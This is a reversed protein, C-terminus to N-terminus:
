EGVDKERWFAPHVNVDVWDVTEERREKAFSYAEEKDEVLTVTTSSDPVSEIIAFM